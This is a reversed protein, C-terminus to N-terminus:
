RRPPPGGPPGLIEQAIVDKQEEETGLEAALVWADRYCREIEQDSMYGYGGFIQLAEDVSRVLLRGTEMRAIALSGPTLRGRDYDGAARYTLCRAVDLGAAMEALKHRIIQFQSLRRGFQERQKGYQMARDFAGQAAGLAQAINRLGREHHYHEFHLGGEGERGVRNEFSVRVERLEVDGSPTLRLGMKEIPRVGIGEQGREVMLTILGAEPERCPLIFRDALPANPVFIRTGRLIYGEARKEAETSSWSFNGEDEPESVAVSLRMEGKTLPPLIKEKQEPTGFKLIIESGADVSALVNGFGGDVRSLAETVLVTEFIGLGSGGFEKPYHVGILGLHCAKKWVSEPFHGAQDLEMALDPQFEGRAFEGAAWQLNKQKASLTFDM